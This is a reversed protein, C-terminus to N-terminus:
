IYEEGGFHWGSCHAKFGGFYIWGKKDGNGLTAVLRLEAGSLELGSIWRRWGLGFRGEM